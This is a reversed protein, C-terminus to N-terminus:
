WHIVETEYASIVLDPRTEEIYRQIHALVEGAHQGSNSIYSLGIQAVQWVDNQGVEAISVEFRNRVREIVSKIIQRKDKLSHSDPLHLTIEAVAIVM